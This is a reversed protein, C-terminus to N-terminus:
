NEYVKEFVSNYQSAINEAAYQKSVFSKLKAVLQEYADRKRLIANELAKELQDGRGADFTFGTTGEEIYERFGDLDSAIVPIDYNYAIMLPGSQTVDRYPLVLYHASSFFGPIEANEIFRIDATICEIGAIMPAYVTEWEACRGAITLRFNDYKLSLRRVAKILMGLGKYAAINGFFLFQIIDYNKQGGPGAGFHKLSMPVSFVRSCKPEILKAQSASFTLVTDFKRLFMEKTKKLLVHHKWGSHHVVDHIGYITRAKRIFAMCLTRFYIDEFDNLYIVDYNGRRMALILKIYVPINLPNRRRYRLHVIKLQILKNGAIAPELEKEWHSRSLRPILVGFTIQHEKSLHPLVNMDTDIVDTSSLYFIRM